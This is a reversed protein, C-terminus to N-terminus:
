INHFETHKNFISTKLEIINVSKNIKRPMRQGIKNGLIYFPQWSCCKLCCWLRAACCVSTSTSVSLCITHIVLTQHSDEMPFQRMQWVMSFYKHVTTCNKSDFDDGNIIFMTFQWLTGSCLRFTLWNVNLEFDISLHHM